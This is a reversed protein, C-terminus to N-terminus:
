PSPIQTGRAAGAAGGPGDVLLRTHDGLRLTEAHGFIVLHERARSVAVNLLNPHDDVFRLNRPETVVASFLVIAREGGQFRHVTGLALGPSSIRRIAIADRLMQEQAVFPTIIAIDDGPVGDASLQELLALLAEGEDANAWSGRVRQQRGRVDRYLVPVNLVTTSPARLPTHVTLGYGALADSLAIIDPHCRFHDTLTPREEVARDALLQASSGSSEHVRFAAFREDGLDLKAARQARAENRESLRMVPPLQHVDGILLASRARLLGCIPYAPHCQGAEDIVLRDITDASDEFVNGMSLLTSGLVPYLRTFAGHEGSRRQAARRLSRTERLRKILEDLSGLLSARNAIAWRERVEVADLFLQHASLEIRAPETVVETEADVTRLAELEEEWARRQKRGDKTRRPNKKKAADVADAAGYLADLWEDLADAEQIGDPLEPPLRLARAVPSTSDALPPVASVLSRWRAEVRARKKGRRGEVINTMQRVARDIIHLAEIIAGAEPAERERQLAKEVLAELEAIRARRKSQQEKPEILRRFRGESERFAAIARALAAKADADPQAELWRTARRLAEVTVSWTVDQNGARLALPLRDNPLDHSLPDLVNDVARNNTSAVVLQERPMALGEALARAREVVVHAALSLILETKGTGPPGQVATLQSGLFREGAVLQSETLGLKRFRGLMPERRPKKARGALYGHLVTSTHLRFPRDGSGLLHALDNQLHYTAHLLGPDQVIATPWVSVGRVLKPAIATTLADVLASGSLDAAHEPSLTALLGRAIREQSPRSGWRRELAEIEDDLLGLVSSLLDRDVSIEDSAVDLGRGRLVLADPPPTRKTGHGGSSWAAGARRWELDVPTRILTALEERGAFYFTPWGLSWEPGGDDRSFRKRRREIRTWHEFFRALADDMTLTAAGTGRTLLEAHSGALRVYSQAGGGRGPRQAQPRASVSAEAQVAALWYKLVGLIEDRGDSSSM